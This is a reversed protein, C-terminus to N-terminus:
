AAQFRDHHEERDTGIAGAFHESKHAAAVPPKSDPAPLTASGYTAHGRSGSAYPLSVVEPEWAPGNSPSCALGEANAASAIGTVVKASGVVKRAPDIADKPHGDISDLHM